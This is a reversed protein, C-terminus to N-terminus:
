LQKLLLDLSIARSEGPALHVDWLPMVCSAQYVREFGAESLSITEIPFRWVHAPARLQMEIEIGLWENVLAINEVAASEGRADLRAQERAIGNARYYADDSHGALLAFNFEVGFRFALPLTHSNTLTYTIPLQLNSSQRHVTSPSHQRANTRIVLQKEVRVPAFLNDQWVNGDRSLEVLLKEGVSKGKAKQRKVKSKYEQDVFDGLERYQARSFNELTEDFAIFHDILGLRRYWDYTLLKELGVEKARVVTSHISELKERPPAGPYEVDGRAAAEVLDRHYGEERRALTNVLNIKKARWDWECIAGGRALDFYINQADGSVLLEDRSDQDYDRLEYDIWERKGHAIEDAINEAQILHAYNAHRIHPLYIGGFVGHWYPCNCQAAYLADLAPALSRSLTPSKKRNGTALQSNVKESVLLMKKHMANVEPYKVLFNRWFSGRIFKLVNDRKEEQLQHKLRTLEGSLQAPLAWETMEDYAATPLYIRGLAPFKEAYEALTITHLWESNEELARFFIEM